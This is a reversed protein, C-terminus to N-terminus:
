KDENIPLPPEGEKNDELFANFNASYDIPSMGKAPPTTKLENYVKGELLRKKGNVNEVIGPSYGKATRGTHYGGDKLSEFVTKFKAPYYGVHNAGSELQWSNRGTLISARSPACKANNTYANTFLLGNEAIRDFAPTKVWDCGYASAHPFSQDDSICFLINPPVKETEKSCSTFVMLCVTAILLHNIKM